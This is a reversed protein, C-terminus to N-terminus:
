ASEERRGDATKNEQKRGEGLGRRVVRGKMTDHGKKGRESGKGEWNQVKEKNEREHKM